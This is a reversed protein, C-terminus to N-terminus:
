EADIEVEVDDGSVRTLYSKVPFVAPLARVAGSRVDFRAGHRPCEIENGELVSQEFSSGDHTCVDEIAYFNGDVNCVAIAVDDVRYVRVEGEPVDATRAVKVFRPAM